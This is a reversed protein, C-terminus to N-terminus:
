GIEFRGTRQAMTGAFCVREHGFLESDLLDFPIAVCNLKIFPRKYRAREFVPPVKKWEEQNSYHCRGRLSGRAHITVGSIAPRSM